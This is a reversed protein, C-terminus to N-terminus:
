WMVCPLLWSILSFNEYRDVLSMLEAGPGCVLCIGIHGAM